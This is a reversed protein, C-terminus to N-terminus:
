SEGYRIVQARREYGLDPLLDAVEWLFGNNDVWYDYLGIVADWVGLLQYELKRQRGDAGMLSGPEPGFTRTQDIVRFKQEPRSVGPLYKIGSGTMQLTRPILTLYVPNADIFAATNMRQYKLENMTLGVRRTTASILTAAAAMLGSGSLNATATVTGGASAILTGTASFNASAVRIQMAGATLDGHASFAAAATRIQLAAATMDGHASLAAAGEKVVTGAASLTGSGSLAAAGEKVVTAAASLSGTASLAASGLAIRVASATLTGVASLAAAGLKIVTAAATLTSTASFAAAATVVSGGAVGQVEMWVMAWAQGSPASMGVTKAGASGSDAVKVHRQVSNFNTHGDFVQDTTASLLFADTAPDVSNADAIVGILASNAGGTTLASSPVGSGSKTTGFNGKQASSWRKVTTRHMSNGSPTASITMSGPASGVTTSWIAAYPFFGSTPGETDKTYTLHSVLSDTVSFGTAADWTSVEITIFEGAAPSFSPTTNAASDVNSDGLTYTAILTPATM